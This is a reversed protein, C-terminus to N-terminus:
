PRAQAHEDRRRPIHCPLLRSLRVNSVSPLRDQEVCAVGHEAAMKLPLSSMSSAWVALGVIVDPDLCDRPMTLTWLARPPSCQLLLTTVTAALSLCCIVGMGWLVILHTRGPALLKTLLVIIGLKPFGLTEIGPVYAIMMWKIVNQKEELDLTDFHQGNGWQVSM